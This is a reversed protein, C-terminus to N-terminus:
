DILVGIEKLKNVVEEVYLISDENSIQYKNILEDVIDQKEKELKIADYIIKSTENMKIVGNFVDVTKGTPVLLYKDSMKQLVLDGIFRM